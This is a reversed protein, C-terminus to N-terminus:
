PLELDFVLIEETDVNRLRVTLLEGPKVRDVFVVGDRLENPVIRGDKIEKYLYDNQMQQNANSSGVGDVVAPILLPWVFLGAVGYATARGVTSFGCEKAVEEAPTCRKSLCSRKDFQYTSPSRNDIILYLPQYGKEMTNASFISKTERVDFAKCALNVGKQENRNAYDMVNNTPLNSTTYRACSFTISSILLIAVLVNRMQEEGKWDWEGKCIGFSTLNKSIRLVDVM